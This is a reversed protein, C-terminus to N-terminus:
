GRRRPGHRGELYGRVYAKPDLPFRVGLVEGLLFRAFLPGVFALALEEPPEDKRLEGAEQKARFFGVVRGLAEAMGEPVGEGRLEPHRLLESLLKPLFARNAELLGLYGELLGLLGEELPANPDPPSLPPALGRLAERLLAGKSRFRRFLTVESVGAREAIARTTAGRYGREALLELAAQLLRRRTPDGETLLHM